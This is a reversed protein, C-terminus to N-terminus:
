FRSARRYFLYAVAYMEKFERKQFVEFFLSMHSVVLNAHITTSCEAAAGKTFNTNQQRRPVVVVLM